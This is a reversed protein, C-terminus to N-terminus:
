SIKPFLKTTPLHVNPPKNHSERRALCVHLLQWTIMLASPYPTIMSLLTDVLTTIGGLTRIQVRPLSCCIQEVERPFRQMAWYSNLKSKRTRKFIHHIPNETTHIFVHKAQFTQQLIINNNPQLSNSNQEILLQHTRIPSNQHGEMLSVRSWPYKTPIQVNSTELWRTKITVERGWIEKLLKDSKFSCFWSMM